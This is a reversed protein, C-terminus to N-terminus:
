EWDEPTTGEVIMAAIWSFCAEDGYYIEGNESMNQRCNIVEISPIWKEDEDDRVLRAKLNVQVIDKAETFGSAEFKGNWVSDDSTKNKKVYQKKYRAIMILNKNADFAEDILKRFAANVLAYHHSKIQTLKGFFSLRAMEWAETDTDWVISRIPPDNLLLRHSDEFMGWKVEHDSQTNSPMGRFSKVHIEKDDAFKEIVGELGRDMDLVGIPGPATLGFHTKGEKEKGGVRMLLRLNRIESTALDFGKPM